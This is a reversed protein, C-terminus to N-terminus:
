SLGPPPPSLNILPVFGDMLELSIFKKAGLLAIMWVCMMQCKAMTRAVPAVNQVGVKGM